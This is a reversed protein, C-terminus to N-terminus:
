AINKNPNYINKVHNVNTAGKKVASQPLLMGIMKEKLALNGTMSHKKLISGVIKVSLENHTIKDGEKSASLPGGFAEWLDFLNNITIKKEATTGDGNDYVVSYNKGENQRLNVFKFYKGKVPIWLNDAFASINIPDGTNLTMLDYPEGEGFLDIKNMNKMATYASRNSFMSKRVEENTIAFIAFKLTTAGKGTVSEGIPKQTRKLDLGPLSWELLENFFANTHGGGDSVDQSYTNGTTDFTQATPDSMIAVKVKSGIGHTGRGYITMSAGPINMRKTFATSRNNDEVDYANWWESSGKATEKFAVKAPHM